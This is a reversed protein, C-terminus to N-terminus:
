KMLNFVINSIALIKDRESVAGKLETMIQQVLIIVKYMDVNESVIPASVSQRPEQQTPKPPVPVRSGVGTEQHTKPDKQDRLAAALSL